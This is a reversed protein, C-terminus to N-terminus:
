HNHRKFERTIKAIRIKFKLLKVIFKSSNKLLPAKSKRKEWRCEKWNIPIEKIKYGFHHALIILETDFFWENDKIFPVVKKFAEVKMAKFGCQLDSFKHGLIIRSLFNYSQSILERIFSRSVKSDALLRSGISMDYGGRVLPELLDNINELSVALDVDMFAIIDATSNIGYNIIALGKGKGAINVAKIKDPYERALGCALEFSKDISGNVIIIIRWDFDFNQGRCYDLLKKVNKVLIKEENYVPLLFYILM